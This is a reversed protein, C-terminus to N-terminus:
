QYRDAVGSSSARLTRRSSPRSMPPTRHRRQGRGQLREEGLPQGLASRAGVGDGRVSVGQAEKEAVEMLGGSHAGALQVEVVDVGLPYRREQVVEFVVTVHADGGAVGAEGGDVGQEGERGQAMGLVGLGDAPDEGDWGFAVVLLDHAKEGDSLGFREEGGGIAIAPRPSAIMGQQEEGSLGAQPDGLEDRQADFVKMEAGASM